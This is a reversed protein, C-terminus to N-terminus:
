NWAEVQYRKKSQLKLIFKKSEELSINLNNKLILEFTDQVDRPMEKSNGAVYIYANQNLVLDLILKENEKISHQVYKNKNGDRSFSKFLLLNPNSEFEHKFFFDKKENRNGFFLILKRKKNSQIFSRFPAVGTGPGIIPISENQPLKISGKKLICNLLIENKNLNTLYKTCLGFRIRKYPTEFKIIAVLIEIENKLFSSISFYRFKIFPILDFLYNLNLNVNPFDNLVEIFSRKERISYRYLDDISENSSFYDLREKEKEDNTFHKLIEFCRKRPVFQIDLHNKFLDFFSINNFIIENNERNIIKIRKEGKLNLRKLILKINDNDNKPKIGLIDGPEHIPKNNSLINDKNIIEFKISRVDQFHDNDTVRENNILKLKLNNEKEEEKEEEEEEEIYKIIMKSEELIDDSIIKDNKNLPFKIFAQKWLQDLFINLGDEYGFESQDDGDGRQILENGGLQKIRRFLKKSVFNYLPYSSDGLGFVTYTLNSLYDDKLKKQLLYNWFNKMNDPQEGQGTTSCVFIIFIEKELKNKYDYEDMSYISCDFCRKKGLRYIREGVEEACGTQSGYLITLTRKM